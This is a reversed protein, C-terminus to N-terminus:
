LALHTVFVHLLAVTPIKEYPTTHREIRDHVLKQLSFGGLCDNLSEGRQRQFLSITSDREVKSMPVLDVRIEFLAVSSEFLDGLSGTV